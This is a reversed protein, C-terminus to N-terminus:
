APTGAARKPEPSSASAPHLANLFVDPKVTGLVRALRTGTDAAPRESRRDTQIRSLVAAIDAPTRCRHSLGEPLCDYDIDTDRHVFIATCGAALAEICSASNNYVLAQAGETLRAVPDTSFVVETAGGATSEVNRRVESQFSDDATPHFNIILKGGDLDAMAAITKMALEASADLEITTACVVTLTDLPAPDAPKGPPAADIEAMLKEYRVAGGVDIADVPFGGKRFFEASAEGTVILRDPIMGQDVDRKSPLFSLYMDRHPPHFYAIWRASPMAKKFSHRLVKEWPQNEYPSVVADFRAGQDALGRGVADLRAADAAAWTATERRFELALIPSLDRGEVQWNRGAERLVARPAMCNSFVDSWTLFDETFVITEPSSATSRLIEEYPEVWSIPLALYALTSQGQRLISPIRGLYREHELPAGDPFTSKSTWACVLTDAARLGAVPLPHSARFRRLAALRGAHIRLESLARRATSLASKLRDWQDRFFGAVAGEGAFRLKLGNRETTRVLANAFERDDVIFVAPEGSRLIELVLLAKATNPLLRTAYPGRDGLNSALWWLPQDGAPVVQEDLDRVATAITAAIENLRAGATEPQRNPPLVAALASFGAYDNALYVVKGTTGKGFWRSPSALAAGATLVLSTM